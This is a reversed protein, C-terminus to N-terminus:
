IIHDEIICVYLCVKGIYTVLRTSNGFWLEILLKTVSLFLTHLRDIVGGYGNSQIHMVSAGFIGKILRSNRM